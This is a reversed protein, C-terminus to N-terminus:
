DDAGFQHIWKLVQTARFKPEGLTVFFEEMQAQSFGLINTKQVANTM